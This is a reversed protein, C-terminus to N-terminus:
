IRNSAQMVNFREPRSSTISTSTSSSTIQEEETLKKFWYEIAEVLSEIILSLADFDILEDHFRKFLILHENTPSLGFHFQNTEMGFYNAQLLTKFIQYEKYGQLNIVESFVTLYDKDDNMQFHLRYKEELILCFYNDENFSLEDLDYTQSFQKIAQVSRNM